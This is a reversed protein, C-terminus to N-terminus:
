IASKLIKWNDMASDYKSKRTMQYKSEGSFRLNLSKVNVIQSSRFIYITLNERHEIAFIAFSYDAIKPTIKFREIGKKHEPKKWNIASVRIHATKKDTLYIKPYGSDNFKACFNIDQNAFEKLVKRLLNLKRSKEGKTKEILRQIQEITENRGLRSKKTKANKVSERYTKYGEKGGFHKILDRRVTERSVGVQSAINVLYIEGKAYRDLVSKIGGLKVYRKKLEDNM